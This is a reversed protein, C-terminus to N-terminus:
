RLEAAELTIAYATEGHVANDRVALKAEDLCLPLFISIV